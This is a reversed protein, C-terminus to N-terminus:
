GEKIGGGGAGKNEEKEKLYKRNTGRERAKRDVRIIHKALTSGGFLIADYELFLTEIHEDLNSM